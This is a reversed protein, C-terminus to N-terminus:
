RAKKERRDWQIWWHPVSAEIEERGREASMPEVSLKWVQTGLGILRQRVKRAILIRYARRTRPGAGMIIHGTGPAGDITPCRYTITPLRRNLM